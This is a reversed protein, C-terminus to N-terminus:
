KFQIIQAEFSNNLVIFDIFVLFFFFILNLSVVSSSYERNFPSESCRGLSISSTESLAVNFDDNVIM